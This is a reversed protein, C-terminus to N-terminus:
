YCTTHCQDDIFGPSTKSVLIVTRLSCQMMPTDPIGVECFDKFFAGQLDLNVGLLMAMEGSDVDTLGVDITLFQAFDQDATGHIEASTAQVAGEDMAQHFSFAVDPLGM